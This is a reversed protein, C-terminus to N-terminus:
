TREAVLASSHEAADPEAAAPAPKAAVQASAMTAPAAVAAAGSAALKLFERRGTDSVSEERVPTAPISNGTQEKM